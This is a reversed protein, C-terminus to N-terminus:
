KKPFVKLWDDKMDVLLWNQEAAADLAKDLKGASVKRDYAFEREADTHHVILGLTPTKDNASRPMTTYQLMAMDGDSNGAAFIPRRGIHRYIGVPKGGKDDILTFKGDKIITPVGDRLEFKADITTGVVQEPPVGYREESFVRLFDIGGGSVIFVKFENARLYDLLELMPQYVMDTYLMNTKPHRSTALWDSVSSAFEEATINSHATMLMKLLPGQGQAMMTKMDGAIASKYPEQQKWEPHDKALEKIRDLAWIGQFYLPQESWLTGDNDTTAIRESPPVFDDSKPDTVRKVFDIIKAKTPGEKWSPLPDSAAKVSLPLVITIAVFITLFHRKLLTRM